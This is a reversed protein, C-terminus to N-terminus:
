LFVEINCWTYLDLVKIELLNESPIIRPVKVLAFYYLGKGAPKIVWYMGSPATETVSSPLETRYRFSYTIDGLNKPLEIGLQKSLGEFEDRTFQVEVDGVKYHQFFLTEILQVYRNTEKVRKPMESNRRWRLVLVEERLEQRTATSFRKRFLDLKVVEYGISEAIEALLQGTPIMVRLYSAQDGVVYALQAGQRLMPQLELLHRAMGGFYLKTVRSYLKEFGSTKGLEIRRREIENSIDQVRTFGAVLKDDDDIKYM